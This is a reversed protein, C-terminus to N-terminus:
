VHIYKPDVVESFGFDKPLREGRTEVSPCANHRLLSCSDNLPLYVQKRHLIEQERRDREARQAKDINM